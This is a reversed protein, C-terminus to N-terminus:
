IIGDIYQLFYQFCLVLRSKEAEFQLNRVINDSTYVCTVRVRLVTEVTDQHLEQLLGSWM